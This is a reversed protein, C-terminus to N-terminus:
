AEGPAGAAGTYDNEFLTGVGTRGEAEVSDWQGLVVPPDYKLAGSESLMDGATASWADLIQWTAKPPWGELILAKVAMTIKIWPDHSITAPTNGLALFVREVQVRDFPCMPIYGAPKSGNGSAALQGLPRSPCPRREDRLHPRLIELLKALKADDFEPLQDVPPLEGGDIYYPVGSPHMGHLVTQRGPGILEVLVPYDIKGKTNTVGKGFLKMSPVPGTGTWRTFLCGLKKPNGIRRPATPFLALIKQQLAVDLADVDIPCVNNFGGCIGLDADHNFALAKAAERATMATHQHKQWEPLCPSKSRPQGKYTQGHRWIPISSYGLAKMREWNDRFAAARVAKAAPESSSPAVPVVKLGWYSLMANGASTKKWQPLKPM